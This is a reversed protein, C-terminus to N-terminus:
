IRILPCKEGKCLISYNCGVYLIPCFKTEDKICLKNFDKAKGNLLGYPCIRCNDKQECMRPVFDFTIDFQEPYGVSPHNNNYIDRLLKALRLKQPYTGQPFLCKRYTSNNNWVDGPLEFESYLEKKLEHTPLFLKSVVTADIENLMKIFEDKFSSKCYDRLSCWARKQNFKKESKFFKTYEIQFLSENKLINLVREKRNLARTKIIEYEEIDARKLQGIDFYSLLYLSFLIKKILETDNNQLVSVIIRGFQFDYEQLIFLTSLISYYDTSYFRPIFKARINKEYGYKKLVHNDTTQEESVFLFNESDEKQPKYNPYLASYQNREIFFSLISSPNMLKNIIDSDTRNKEIKDLLNSFIFGGVDWISKFPM